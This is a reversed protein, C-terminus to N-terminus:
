VGHRVATATTTMTAAAESSFAKVAAAETPATKSTSAKAVGKVITTKAATAKATAKVTITKAVMTKATIPETMSIEVIPEEEKAFKPVREKVKRVTVM